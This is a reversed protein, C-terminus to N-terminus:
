PGDILCRGLPLRSVPSLFCEQIPTQPKERGIHPNVIWPYAILLSFVSRRAGRSAYFEHKLPTYVSFDHRSYLHYRRLPDCDLNNNMM